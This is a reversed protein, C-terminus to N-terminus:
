LKDRLHFPSETGKETCTLYSSCLSSHFSLGSKKVKNRGVLRPMSNEKMIYLLKKREKEKKKNCAKYQLHKSQTYHSFGPTFRFSRLIHPPPTCFRLIFVDCHKGAAWYPIKGRFAFDFRLNEGIKRQNTEGTTGLTGERALSAIDWVLLWRRLSFWDIFLPFSDMKKAGSKAFHAMENVVWEQGKKTFSLFFFPWLYSM